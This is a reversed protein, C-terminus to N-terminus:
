DPGQDVALVSMSVVPPSPWQPARELWTGCNEAPGSVIDLPLDQGRTVVMAAELSPDPLM